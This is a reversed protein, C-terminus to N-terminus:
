TAMNIKSGPRPTGAFLQGCVGKRLPLGNTVRRIDFSKEKQVRQNATIPDLATPMADM